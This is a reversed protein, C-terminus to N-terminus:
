EDSLEMWSNQADMTITRGLSETMYVSKGNTIARLANFLVNNRERLREIENAAEILKEPPICERAHMKPFGNILSAAQRLYYLLEDTVDM